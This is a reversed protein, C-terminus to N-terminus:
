SCMICLTQTLSYKTCNLVDNGYGRKAGESRKLIIKGRKDKMKVELHIAQQPTNESARAFLLRGVRMWREDHYWWSAMRVGGFMVTMVRNDNTHRM